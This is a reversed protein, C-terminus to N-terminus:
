EEEEIADVVIVTSTALKLLVEIAKDYAEPLQCHNECWGVMQPHICDFCLLQKQRKLKEAAEQNTM